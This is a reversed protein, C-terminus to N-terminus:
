KKAIDLSAPDGKYIHINDVGFVCPSPNMGGVFHLSSIAKANPNRFLFQDAVKTGDIYASFEGKAPDIAYTVRYWKDNQITFGSKVQMSGNFAIFEGQFLGTAAPPFSAADDYMYTMPLFKNTSPVLLDFAITHKATQVEWGKSVWGFTGDDGSDTIELYQDGTARSKVIITGSGSGNGPYKDEAPGAKASSFDEKYVTAGAIPAATSSSTAVPAKGTLDEVTPAGAHVLVNDVGFLGPSPNTSGAFQMVNISAISQNRFGWNDIAKKGSIYVDYTRSDPRISYVVKTWKDSPIEADSTKQETASTFGSLKTNLFTAVGPPFLAASDGAYMIPSCKTASERIFDFALTFEKKQEPVMIQWGAPATDSNDTIHLYKGSDREKLELKGDGVVGLSSVNASDFTEQYIVEKGTATATGTASANEADTTGGEKIIGKAEPEGEYVKYNDFSVVSPALGLGGTIDIRSISKAECRFKLASMKTDGVYVDYTGAAVDLYVALRFFGKPTGISKTESKDFAKVLDPAILIQAAPPWARDDFICIVAPTSSRKEVKAEIEFTLPVKVADFVKSFGIMKTPDNDTLTIMKGSGSRAIAQVFGKGSNTELMSFGPLNVKGQLSNFDENVIVMSQACTGILSGIFIFLVVFISTLRKARNM